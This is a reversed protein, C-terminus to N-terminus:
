EPSLISTEVLDSFIKLTIVPVKRFELASRRHRPNKPSNM